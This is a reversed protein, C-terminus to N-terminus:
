IYYAKKVMDNEVFCTMIFKPTLRKVVEKGDAILRVGHENCFYSLVPLSLGIFYQPNLKGKILVSATKKTVVPENYKIKVVPPKFGVELRKLARPKVKNIIKM